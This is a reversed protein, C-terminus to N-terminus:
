VAPGNAPLNPRQFGPAVDDEDSEEKGNDGTVAGVAKLLCGKRCAYVSGGTEGRRTILEM